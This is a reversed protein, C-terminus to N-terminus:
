VSVYNRRGTHGKIAVSSWRSVDTKGTAKCIALHIHEIGVQVQLVFGCGPSRLRGLVVIIGFSVPSEVENRKHRHIALNPLEVAQLALGLGKTHIPILM